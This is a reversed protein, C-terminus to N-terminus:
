HKIRIGLAAPVKRQLSPKVIDKGNAVLGTSHGGDFQMAVDCGLKEMILACEEYNLGNRGSPYNVAAVAFLYLFRGDDSLGCGSRSRKIRTFERIEGNKYILYFGGMVSDCEAIEEENQKEIIKGRLNGDSNNYLGLAAYKKKLPTIIKGNVKTISVPIETKGLDFPTTNIAYEVQNKNAFDSLFFKKGLQNTSDPKIVIELGTTDLDIKLCKWVANIESIYSSTVAIGPEIDDWLVEEPCLVEVPLIEPETILETKSFPGTTQCASFAIITLFIAIVFFSSNNKKM